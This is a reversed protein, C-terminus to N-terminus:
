KSHKALFSLVLSDCSEFAMDHHHGPLNYCNIDPHGMAKLSAAMFANEEARAPMDNQSDGTVMIIPPLDCSLHALPAYEDILPNYRGNDRGLDAKIQFHTTMQGSILLLGAINKYSLGYKKLFFPNMVSIAALYAGASMGGVFIKEPNIGHRFANKCCFAIAQAADEIQAPAPHQPSFRYRPEAIAFNGNFLDRPCERGGNIMGGGHFFIVLPLNTKNKPLSWYVTQQPHNSMAYNEILLNQFLEQNPIVFKSWENRM